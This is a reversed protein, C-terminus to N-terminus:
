MLGCSQEATHSKGCIARYRHEVDFWLEAKTATFTTGIARYRHEVDFWLRPLGGTLM